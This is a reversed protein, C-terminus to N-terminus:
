KFMIQQSENMECTHLGGDIYLAKYMAQGVSGGRM